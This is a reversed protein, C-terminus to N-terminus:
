RGQAKALKRSFLPLKSSILARAAELDPSSLSRKAIFAFTYGKFLAIMTPSEAYSTFATWPIEGRGQGEAQSRDGVADLEVRVNTLGPAEVRYRKRFTRNRLFPTFLLLALLAMPLSIKLWDTPAINKATVLVVIFSFGLLAMLAYRVRNASTTQLYLKQVEIYEAESVTFTTVIM